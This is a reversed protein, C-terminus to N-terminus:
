VCASTSRAQVSAELEDLRRECALEAEAVRQDAAERQATVSALLGAQKQRRAARVGKLRKLDM